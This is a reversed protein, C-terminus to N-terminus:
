SSSVLKGCTERSGAWLAEVNCHDVMGFLVKVDKMIGYFVSCYSPLSGDKTVGQPLTVLSVTESLALLWSYAEECTQIEKRRSPDHTLHPQLGKQYSM